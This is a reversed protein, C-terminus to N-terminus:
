FFSTPLNNFYKWSNRSVKHIGGSKLTILRGPQKHKIYKTNILTFDNIQVFGYWKVKEYMSYLSSKVKKIHADVDFVFCAKIDGIIFTVEDYNIQLKRDM